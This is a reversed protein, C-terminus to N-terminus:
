RKRSAVTTSSSPWSAEATTKSKTKASAVKKAGTAKEVKALPKAHGSALAVLHRRFWTGDGTKLEPHNTDFKKVLAKLTSNPVYELILRLPQEGLANQINSLGQLTLTKCKLQAVSIALAAKNIEAKADGFASPHAAISNLVNIGDISVNM